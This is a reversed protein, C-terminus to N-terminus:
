TSAVMKQDAQRMDQQRIAEQVRAYLNNKHSLVRQLFTLVEQASAEHRLDRHIIAYLDDAKDPYSAVLLQAHQLAQDTQKDLINVYVLKKLVPPQPYFSLQRQLVEHAFTRSQVDKPIPTHLVWIREAEAEWLPHHIWRVTQQAREMRVETSLPTRNVAFILFRYAEMGVYAQWFFLVALAMMGLHAAGERVRLRYTPLPAFHLFMYFPFLMYLYWLPFEFLSHIASIGVLCLLLLGRQPETDRKCCAYVFYVMMLLVMILGPLGLEVLLHFIINHAHTFVATEVVRQHNGAWEWWLSQQAYSGWGHGWLPSQLFAMWSKSWEAYRRAGLNGAFLRDLASIQDHVPIHLARLIEPIYKGWFQCALLLLILVASWFAFRKLWLDQPFRWRWVLLLLGWLLMYALLLRGTAWTLPLLMTLLILCLLAKLWVKQTRSLLWVGAVMGWMVLHSFVNRQAVNGFLGSNNNGSAVWYSFASPIEWHAQISKAIAVPLHLAQLWGLLAQCFAVLLLAWALGVLSNAAERKASVCAGVAVCVLGVGVVEWSPALYSVHNVTATWLVWTVFCLTLIQIPSIGIDRSLSGRLLRLASLGFMLALLALLSLINSLLNPVPLFHLPVLSGALACLGLLFMM